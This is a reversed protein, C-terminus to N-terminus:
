FMGLCDPLLSLYESNIVDGDCASEMKLWRTSLFLTENRLDGSRSGDIFEPFIYFFIYFCSKHLVRWALLFLAISIDNAPCLFTAVSKSHSKHLVEYEGTSNKECM